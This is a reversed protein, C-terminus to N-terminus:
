NSLTVSDASIALGDEEKPTRIEFLAGTFEVGEVGTFRYNGM